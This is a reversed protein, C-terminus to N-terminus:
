GGKPASGAGPATFKLVQSSAFQRAESRTFKRVHSTAFQGWGRRMRGNPTGGDRRFVAGIRQRIPGKPAGTMDTAEGPPVGGASKARASAASRLRSPLAADPDGGEITALARLQESLHRLTDPGDALLTDVQRHAWLATATPVHSAAPQADVTPTSRDACGGACLAALMVVFVTPIRVARM